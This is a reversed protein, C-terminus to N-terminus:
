SISIKVSSIISGYSATLFLVSLDGLSLRTERLAVNLLVTTNYEVLYQYQYSQSTKNLNEMLYAVYISDLVM